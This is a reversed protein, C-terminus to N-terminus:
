AIVCWRGPSATGGLAVRWRLAEQLRLIRYEDHRDVLLLVESKAEQQLLSKGFSYHVHDCRYHVRPPTMTGTPESSRVLIYIEDSDTSRKDAGLIVGVIALTLANGPSRQAPTVGSRSPSRGLTALCLKVRDVDCRVSPNSLDAISERM